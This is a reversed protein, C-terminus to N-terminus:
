QRTLISYKRNFISYKLFQKWKLFSPAVLPACAACASASRSRCGCINLRCYEIKLEPEDPDADKGAPSGLAEM